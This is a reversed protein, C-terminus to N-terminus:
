GTGSKKYPMRDKGASKGSIMGINGLNTSVNGWKGGNKKGEMNIQHTKLLEEGVFKLCQDYIHQERDGGHDSESQLFVKKRGMYTDYMAKVREPRVLQDDTGAIFVCPVKLKKASIIPKLDMIDYDIKKEITSSIIGMGMSVVFNPLYLMKDAIDQVMVILEPFPSDLVMSSINIRNSRLEDAYLVATVAGM